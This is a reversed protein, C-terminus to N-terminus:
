LCTKLVNAEQEYIWTYICTNWQSLLVPLSNGNTCKGWLFTLLFTLLFQLLSVCPCLILIFLFALRQLSTCNHLCSSQVSLFLPLIPSYDGLWITTNEWYSYDYDWSLIMCMHLHMYFNLLTNINVLTEEQEEVRLLRLQLVTSCGYDTKSLKYSTM